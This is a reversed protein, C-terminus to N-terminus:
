ILCLTDMCYNVYRDELEKLLFTTVVNSDKNEISLLKEQLSSVVPSQLDRYQALQCFHRASANNLNADDQVLLECVSITWDKLPVLKGWYASCWGKIVLNNQKPNLLLSTQYAELAGQTKGLKELAKGLLAHGEPSKPKVSLYSTVYRVTHEYDGVTFYLKAFSFCRLNRQMYLFYPRKVICWYHPWVISRNWAPVCLHYFTFTDSTFCM